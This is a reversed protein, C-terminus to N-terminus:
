VHYIPKFSYKGQGSPLLDRFPVEIEDEDDVSLFLTPEAKNLRIAYAGVADRYTTQCILNRPYSEFDGYSRQFSEPLRPQM